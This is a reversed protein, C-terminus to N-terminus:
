FLKTLRELPPPVEGPTKCSSYSNELCLKFFSVTLTPVCATLQPQLVSNCTSYPMSAPRPPSATTRTPFQM